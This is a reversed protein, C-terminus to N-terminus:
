CQKPPPPSLTLKMSITDLTGVSIVRMTAQLTPRIRGSIMLIGTFYFFFYSLRMQFAKLLSSSHRTRKQLIKGREPSTGTKQM